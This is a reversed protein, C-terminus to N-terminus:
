CPIDAAHSHAPFLSRRLVQTLVQHTRRLSATTSEAVAVADAESRIAARRVRGEATGLLQRREEAAANTAQVHLAQLFAFVPLKHQATTACWVVVAARQAQQAAEYNQKHHRLLSAVHQALEDRSITHTCQVAHPCVYTDQEEALLELDRVLARHTSLQHRITAQLQSLVDQQKHTASRYSAISEHISHELQQLQTLLHQVDQDM